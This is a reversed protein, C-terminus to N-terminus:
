LATLAEDERNVAMRLAMFTRTAPHISGRRGGSRSGAAEAALRALALTSSLRGSQRAQCIRKAIRRSAREQSQVYILTAIEAESLSELLDAATVGRSPDLRMDLPGNLEFSFGRVPDALQNSSVGLDAVIADVREMQIGRLTAAITAFNAHILQARSGLRALRGRSFSINREDADFGVLQVSDDTAALLAGAHGGRGVTCDVIIRGAVPVIACLLEEVLVPVHGIEDSQSPRDAMEITCNYSQVAAVVM